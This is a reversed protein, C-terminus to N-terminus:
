HRVRSFLYLMERGIQACREDYRMMEEPSDDSAKPDDFPLSVRLSSGAVIPCSSDAQSCTMVACFDRMPNPPDNYVKSFCAMGVGRDQFSVNYCPNEESRDGSVKFGVREIAAVARPNFATIETGGSFTEVQPIRYYHAATAAWIQCLHSRRSNHTCIFTLRAPLNKGAQERIYEAIKELRTRRDASIQGFEATRQAISKQIASYLEPSENSPSQGLDTSSFHM